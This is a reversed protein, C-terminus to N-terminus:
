PSIFLVNSIARARMRVILIVSFFAVLWLVCWQRHIVGPLAGASASLGENRRGLPTTLTLSRPALATARDGHGRHRETVWRM